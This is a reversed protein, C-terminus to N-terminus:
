VLAKWEKVSYVKQQRQEDFDEIIIKNVLMEELTASLNLQPLTTKLEAKTMPQKHELLIQKIVEKLKDRM